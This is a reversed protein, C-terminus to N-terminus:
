EETFSYLDSFTEDLPKGIVAYYNEITQQMESGTYLHYTTRSLAKLLVPEPFSFYEAAIEVAAEPNEQVSQIAEDLAQNFAAVTEPHAEAWEPNVFSAVQPYGQDEPQYQNWLDYLSLSIYVDPQNEVVSVMPEPLIVAKAEGEKLLAVSSTFPAYVPQIDSKWTLGEQAALYSCVEEIPSGEFPVYVEQGQLDAFSDVPEGYTALYSLGSVYTNVAQIPADNKFLDMGVSLGIVLFQAEGRLFITNAQSQNSFLVLDVDDMEQAALIVPISSTSEPAYITWNTTPAETPADTPQDTDNNTPMPTCGSCLVIAILFISCFIGFLKKM